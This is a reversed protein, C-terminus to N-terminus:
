VIIDRELHCNVTSKQIRRTHFRIGTIYLLYRYYVIFVRLQKHETPSVCLVTARASSNSRKGHLCEPKLLLCAAFQPVAPQGNIFVLFFINIWLVVSSLKDFEASRQHHTLFPWAWFQIRHQVRVAEHDSSSDAIWKVVDVRRCTTWWCSDLLIICCPTIVFAVNLLDSALLVSSFLM